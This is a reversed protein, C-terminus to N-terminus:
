IRLKKQADFYSRETYTYITHAVSVICHLCNWYYTSKSNTSFQKTLILLVTANPFLIIINEAFEINRCQPHTNTHCHKTMDELNSPAKYINIQIFVEIM